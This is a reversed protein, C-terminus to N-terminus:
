PEGDDRNNALPSAQVRAQLGMNIWEPGSGHAQDQNEDKPESVRKKAHRTPPGTKFHHTPACASAGGEILTIVGLVLPIMQGPQTVDNQPSLKNYEIIKEVGAITLVLIILGWLVWVRRIITQGRQWKPIEIAPSMLPTIGFRGEWFQRKREEFRNLVSNEVVYELTKVLKRTFWGWTWRRVPVGMSETGEGEDTGAWESFAGLLLRLYEPVQDLLLLCRFASYVLMLVRFWGSVDVSTFLWVRNNTGLLPLKRVLTVFFWMLAVCEWVVSIASFAYGVGGGKAKDWDKIAAPRPAGYANILSLVLWAECPSLEQRSVLGTWSALFSICVAASLLKIGTRSHHHSSYCYLLMGFVQLYV